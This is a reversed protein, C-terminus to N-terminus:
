PMVGEATAVAIETVFAQCQRCRITLTGTTRNYSCRTGASPHCAPHLYLEEHDRHKCDPDACVARDLEKRTQSM